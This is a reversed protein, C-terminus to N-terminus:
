RTWSIDSLSARDQPPLFRHWFRAWWNDPKSLGVIKGIVLNNEDFSVVTCGHRSCWARQIPGGVMGGGLYLNSPTYGDYEGPPVGLVDIVASETMGAHIRALSSPRIRHPTLLLPMGLLIALLAFIVSGKLLKACM